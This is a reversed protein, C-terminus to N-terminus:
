SYGEGTMYQHFRTQTTGCSDELFCVSSNNPTSRRNQKTCVSSASKVKNSSENYEPTDSESRSQCGAQARREETPNASPVKQSPLTRSQNFFTFIFSSIFTAPQPINPVKKQFLHM